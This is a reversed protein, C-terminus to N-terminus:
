AAERGLLDRLGPVMGSEVAVWLRTLGETAYPGIPSNPKIGMIVAVESELINQVLFLDIAQAMRPPLMVPVLDYLCEVDWLCLEVTGSCIVEVGDSEYLARFAQLNRFISRLM